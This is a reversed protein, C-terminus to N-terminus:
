SRAASARIAGRIKVLGRTDPHTTHVVVPAQSDNLLTTQQGGIRQALQATPQVGRSLGRVKPRGPVSAHRAAPKVAEQLVPTDKIGVCKLQAEVGQTLLTDLDSTDCQVHHVNFTATWARQRQQQGV